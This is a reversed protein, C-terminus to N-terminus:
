LCKSLEERNFEIVRKVIEKANFGIKVNDKETLEELTYKLDKESFNIAEELNQKMNPYNRVAYKLDKLFNEFTDYDAINLRIGTGFAVPYFCRFFSDYADSVDKNMFTIDRRLYQELMCFSNFGFDFSLFKDSKGLKNNVAFNKVNFDLNGLMFHEPVKLLNDFVNDTIFESLEPKYDLIDEVKSLKRIIRDSYTKGDAFIEEYLASKPKNLIASYLPTYTELETDWDDCIVGLEENLRAPYYQVAPMYKKVMKSILSEYVVKNEIYHYGGSREAYKFCFNKEQICDYLYTVKADKDSIVVAVGDEIAKGINYYGDVYKYKHSLFM